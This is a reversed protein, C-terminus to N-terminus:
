TPTGGGVGEEECRPAFVVDRHTMPGRQRSRELSLSPLFCYVVAQPPEDSPANFNTARGRATVAPM